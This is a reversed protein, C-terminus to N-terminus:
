ARPGYNKAILKTLYSTDVPAGESKGGGHGQEKFLPDEDVAVSAASMKEVVAEFAADPLVELSAYLAEAEVEGVAAVLKAKRGAVRAEEAAALAAAEADAYANLKEQVAELQAQLATMEAAKAALAENAALLSALAEDKETTLTAVTAQLNELEKMELKDKESSFLRKGLMPEGTQVTDALYEFFSERTMITHALGLEVAQEAMFMKAETAKVAEVSINQMEAVYSTFREYLTDVKEQIDKLFEESFQGEADFPIKSKGAYVYTDKVGMNKMAENANRLKVVVGISGLEAEPNAIIEHAAATLGMGASAAMGDIYAILKIGAEDAKRRMYRGTEMMGYAEGGPSDVDLIITKAGAKVLGDFEAQIQQYSANAEGCVAEYEAYTLPGQIGILGTKTEEVYQLDREKKNPKGDVAMKPTFPKDQAAVIGEVWKLTPEDILHPINYLKQQMEVLKRTM